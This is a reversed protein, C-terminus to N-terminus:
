GGSQAIIREIIPRDAAQPSLELYRRYAGVGRQVNGARMYARGLQKHVQANGPMHRAAEEFRAIAQSVNNALFLRRGEEYAIQGPSQGDDTGQQQTQQQQTQQQQTQQQQQQQQAHQQQQQQQGGRDRPNRRRGPGDNGPGPVAIAPGADPTSSPTSAVSRVGTDPPVVPDPPNATGGGTGTGTHPDGNAIATGGGGGGGFAGLAYATVGAVLLLGAAIGLILGLRSARGEAVRAIMAEQSATTPTSVKLTTANPDPTGLPEEAQPGLAQVARTIAESMEQATKFRHERNKSMARMCILEFSEPIHLDPRRARPTVPQETLHKTIIGLASEALFPVAGCLLQYMMVGAAYIDARPDLEEGRAQEPAMYEPTGCVFGTVTIGSGGEAEQIKAIGFDCVKVLDGAGRRSIVIVNEPKLDRHIVGKHHAEDLAALVQKMIDAIRAPSMPSQDEIVTLLDDGELLEMAIYLTGDDDRGFDIIQLSNPHSLRSAAQAERHFRKAVKPDMALHKHLVKIAVSKELSRQKARYVRGMAGEGLADGIEFNRAIVQGVLTDVPQEDSSPPVVEGCASCVQQEPLLKASCKLCSPM